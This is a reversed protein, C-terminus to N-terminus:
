NKFFKSNYIYKSQLYNLKNKKIFITIKNINLMSVKYTYFYVKNVLKNFLNNLLIQIKVFIFHAYFKYTRLKFFSIRLFFFFWNNLYIDIKKKKMNISYKLPMYMPYILFLNRKLLNYNNFGYNIWIKVGCLGYKLRIRAESYKILNSISNLNLSGNRMWMYTAIQKRTFRGSCVIKYGLFSKQKIKMNLDKLIPRLVWNLSYRKQLKLSIYDTIANVTINLFDLNYVNFFIIDNNKTLQKIYKSLSFNLLRWYLNLIFFKFLYEYCSKIIVESIKKNINKNYIKNLYIPFYVINNEESNANYYYLNIYVKSHVRYIKYHSILINLNLFKSKKIFWNLFHFLIYDKKFLNIYNFNNILVWNSNWFSNVSIRLSLPNILHGM